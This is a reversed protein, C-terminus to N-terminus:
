LNKICDIPGFMRCIWCTEYLNSGHYGFYLGYLRSVCVCLCVLLDSDSTDYDPAAYNNGKAGLQMGKLLAAERLFLKFFLFSTM